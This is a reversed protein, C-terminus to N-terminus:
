KVVGILLGRLNGGAFPIPSPYKTFDVSEAASLMLNISKASYCGQPLDGAIEIVAGGDAQGGARTSLEGQRFFIRPPKDESMKALKACAKKFGDTINALHADEWARAMMGRVNPWDLGLLPSKIWKGDSYNFTVTDKGIQLSQIEDEIWLIEDIAFFPINVVMPFNFGLWYEAVIVNNTAYASGGALLVGLSWARNADNGVFDRLSTFADLLPCDSYVTVGEPSIRKVTDLPVCPVVVRFAGSRVLLSQNDDLRLTIVDECAELAKMFLSAQPCINFAIDVPASIALTGNYATCRQNEIRFHTLGPVYDRRAIARAVFKLADLM